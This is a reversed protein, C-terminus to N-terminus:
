MCKINNHQEKKFRNMHTWRNSWYLKNYINAISLLHMMVDNIYACHARVCACMCACVWHLQTICEVFLLLLLFLLHIFLNFPMSKKKKNVTLLHLVNLILENRISTSQLWCLVFSRFEIFFYKVSYIHVAYVCHIASLLLTILISEYIMNPTHTLKKTNKESKNEGGGEGRRRRRKNQIKKSQAEYNQTAERHIKTLSNFKCFM